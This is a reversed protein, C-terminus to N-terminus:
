SRAPSKFASYRKFQVFFYKAEKSYVIFRVYQYNATLMPYNNTGSRANKNGKNQM